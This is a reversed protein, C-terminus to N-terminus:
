KKKTGFPRLWWVPALGVGHGVGVVRGADGVGGVAEDVPLQAPEVEIEADELLGLVGGVGEHFPQLEEGDEARVEILKEHHAHRPHAFLRKALAGRLVRGRVAGPRQFLEAMDSVPGLIEDGPM